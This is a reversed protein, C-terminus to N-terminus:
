ASAERVFVPEGAALADLVIQAIEPRIMWEAPREGRGLLERLASGSISQEGADTSDASEVYRGLEHSYLVDDFCIPEIGLNPFREFIQQSARPPYYDGVGTHDRGVIFHSCGFNKRCLATFLAERPGAYRSFTAFTAFVVEDHPYFERILAQHCAIIASSEFDGPKKKGVVPHVFLGDVFGRELAMRQIYEHARHPINRTHFAAVSQWAREEFLKRVQRPTLNYAQEAETAPIPLRVMVLKAALETLRRGAIGAELRPQDDLM